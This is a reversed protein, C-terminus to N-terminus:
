ATPKRKAKIAALLANKSLPKGGPAIDIKYDDTAALAQLATLSMADYNPDDPTAEMAALAAAYEAADVPEMWSGKPATTVFAEGEEVIKGDVYGRQTAVYRVPNATKSM